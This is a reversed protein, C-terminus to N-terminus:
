PKTVKGDRTFGPAPPDIRVLKRRGHEIAYRHIYQGGNSGEFALELVQRRGLASPDFSYKLFRLNQAGKFKAEVALTVPCKEMNAVLGRPEEGRNELVLFIATGAPCKAAVEERAFCLVNGNGSSWTPIEGDKGAEYLREFRAESVCFFPAHARRHMARLARDKRLGYLFGLLGVIPGIM